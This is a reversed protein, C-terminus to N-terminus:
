KMGKMKLFQERLEAPWSALNQKIANEIALQAAAGKPRRIAPPKDQARGKEASKRKRAEALSINRRLRLDHLFTRPREAFPTAKPVISAEVLEIEALDAVAVERYEGSSRNVLEAIGNRIRSVVYTENKYTTHKM